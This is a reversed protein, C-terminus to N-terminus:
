TSCKIWVIKIKVYISTNIVSWLNITVNINGNRQTVAYDRTNEISFNGNDLSYSVPYYGTKTANINTTIWGHQLQATVGREEAIIYRPDIGVALNPINNIKEELEALKKNVENMMNEFDSLGAKAALLADTEPKTYVDSKNAKSSNLGDVQQQLSAIDADHKAAKNQLELVAAEMAKIRAEHDNTSSILDEVRLSNQYVGEEMHNLNVEDISPPINNHWFNKIYAM